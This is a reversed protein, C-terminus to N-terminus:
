FFTGNSVYHGHTWDPYASIIHSPTAFFNHTSLASLFYPVPHELDVQLTKDDLAKIGVEDLSCRQNKAAKANKIIYLDIATECPFTPDLVTKWTKEFDYATVPTGDSWLADRLTFTYRKQDSSVEIKEAAAPIPQGNPDIRTLGEFCLKVVPISVTDTAKRPDLTPPEGHLNLRIEQSVPRYCKDKKGCSSLCFLSLAIGSALWKNM